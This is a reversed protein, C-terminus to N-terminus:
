KMEHHYINLKGRLYRCISNGTPLSESRVLFFLSYEWDAKRVPAFQAGAADQGTMDM